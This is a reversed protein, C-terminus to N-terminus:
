TWVRAISTLLGLPDKCRCKCFEYRLQPVGGWKEKFRRIGENVGLGLHIYGKGHERALTIMEHFLLDSAGVVYHHKSHCGVVYTAFDKAALDIVYFASVKGFQDRASLVMATTSAPVYETMALFLKEIRAGPRERELFETILERHAKAIERVREVTLDRSARKVVRKLDAKLEFTGLALTYYHDSERDQCLPIVSPPIEPAIFWLHTPRFSAITGAIVRAFDEPAFNGTLPYGVLIVWNDKALGLCDDILFPEGRSILAMLGIIHEPVYAHTLIYQEADPSIM